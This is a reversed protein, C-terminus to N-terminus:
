EEEKFVNEMDIGYYECIDLMWIAICDDQLNCKIGESDTMAIPEVMKCFDKLEYFSILCIVDGKDNHDHWHYEVENDTIFKYLDLETMAKTKLHNHYPCGFNLPYYEWHDVTM